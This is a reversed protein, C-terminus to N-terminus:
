RTSSAGAQEDPHSSCGTGARSHFKPRAREMATYVDVALARRYTVGAVEELADVGAELMAETILPDYREMHM